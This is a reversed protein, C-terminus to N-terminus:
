FLFHAKVTGTLQDAIFSVDFYTSRYIIYCAQSKDNTDAIGMTLATSRYRCESREKQSSLPTEMETAITVATRQVYIKVGILITQTPFFFM